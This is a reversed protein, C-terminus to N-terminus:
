SSFLSRLIFCFKSRLSSGYSFTSQDKNSFFIYDTRSDLLAADLREKLLKSFNTDLINYRYSYNM